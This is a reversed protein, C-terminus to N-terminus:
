SEIVFVTNDYNTIGIKDSKGVTKKEVTCNPMLVESSLFNEWRDPKQLM